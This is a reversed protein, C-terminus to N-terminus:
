GTATPFSVQVHLGGEPNAHLTLTANHATAIAHVISLGLGHGHRHGAPRTQAQQFPQLIRDLEAPHIHPGSNEVTLVAHGADTHTTVRIHGGVTNHHIANDLLNTILREVLRPDGTSQAAHLILELQLDHDHLESARTPLAHDTLTALDFTEHQELGRESSALTLLADTLQEQEHSLALLRESTARFSAITADPDTLNAELLARELTLPTRLEHSANAVFRRQAAFAAELRDLLDDFTGALRSLEDDPGNLALRKHLSNATIARARQNLLRLPRLARGAALWGLAVSAAAMVALAVGSDLLLQHLDDNHQRAALADKGGQSLVPRSLQNLPTRKIPSRFLDQHVLVYTIALLVAGSAVFLSAYVITLRLRVSRRPLRRWVGAVLRNARRTV